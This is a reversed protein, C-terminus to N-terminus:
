NSALCDRFTDADVNGGSLTAVITKGRCELGGSLIVALTVAGGPELVLKLNRWAYAVAHRVADDSVVLGCVGHKRMVEFTLEGPTPALLADCISVATMDNSQREGAELSRLTDDYGAPEVTHVRLADVRALATAVGATLGGGGCCVLMTDPTVGIEACQDLIELGITGQGAITWPHDYPPVLTANKSGAIEAAIVERKEHLRDYLVVEAGYGRTNEVKMAPADSPMVITAPVGYIQAAAAVGQAHNGSSYAVVGKQRTDPEIQSLFNYAGRFKFSGTRQLSEAKLLIRGGTQANLAPNEILPTRVAHGALRGAAAEIDAYTPASMETM